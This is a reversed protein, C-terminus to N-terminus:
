KLLTLKKVGSFEQKNDLRQAAFSYFYIGSSLGSGDFRVIHNGSQEVDDILERIKQGLINYVVISVKSASPLYYQINTIPNFPNPYNQKLEFNGPASATKVNSISNPLICKYARYSWVGSPLTMELVRNGLTDVETIATNSNNTAGWGIFTNGGPLREVSGMAFTYIEPSNHYQWVLTATKNVQDLKYECARSVQNSHLNGNDFLTLNGNPLIRCCHQHSFGISDNVFTFQNNKGGLRWIVNGTKRDIKTIEDLHRSSIIINGDLDLDLANGHVYDITHATLDIDSTADTIKFYDRSNWNFILSGNQDLEQVVLRTVLATTDGGPVIKSMDVTDIQKGLLFAHGDPFVRLEHNDTSINSGVCAFNKSPQMASDLSKFYGEDVTWYTYLGNPQLTFGNSSSSTQEIFVPEADNSAIILYPKYIEGYEGPLDSLLISGSEPNTIFTTTLKPFDSPLASQPLVQATFVLFAFLLIRM